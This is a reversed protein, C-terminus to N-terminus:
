SMWLTKIMRLPSMIDGATTDDFEFVKNIMERQSMELEGNDDDVLQKIEEETTSNEKKFFRKLGGSGM